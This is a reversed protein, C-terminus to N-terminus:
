EATEDTMVDDLGLEEAEFESLEFHAIETAKM